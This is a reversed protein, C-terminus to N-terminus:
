GSVTNKVTVARQDVALYNAGAGVHMNLSNPMVSSSASIKLRKLPTFSYSIISVMLASCPTLRFLGGQLRNVTRHLRGGTRYHVPLSQQLRRQQIHPLRGSAHDGIATLLPHLVRKAAGAQQVMESVPKVAAVINLAPFRIRRQHEMGCLRHVNVNLVANQNIIGHLHVIPIAAPM